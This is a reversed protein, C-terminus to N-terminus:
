SRFMDSTNKECSSIGSGSTLRSTPEPLWAQCVASIMRLKSGTMRSRFGSRTSTYPSTLEVTAAAKTQALNSTGTPWTSAPSREKSRVMGSSILRITVSRRDSRSNVGESSPSKFRFASPTGCSCIWRTPFTIISERICSKGAALFKGLFPHGSRNARTVNCRGEFTSSLAFRCLIKCESRCTLACSSM